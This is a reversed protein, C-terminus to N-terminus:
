VASVNAHTMKANLNQHNERSNSKIKKFSNQSDCREPVELDEPGVQFGLFFELSSRLLNGDEAILKANEFVSVTSM